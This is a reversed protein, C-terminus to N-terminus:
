CIHTIRASIQLVVLYTYYLCIHITPYAVLLYTYHVYKRSFYEPTLYGICYSSWLYNFLNIYKINWFTFNFMFRNFFITIIAIIFRIRYTYLIIYIIYERSYNLNFLFHNRWLCGNDVRYLVHSWNDMGNLIHSWNDVRYLEDDCWNNIQPV